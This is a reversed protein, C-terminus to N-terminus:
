FNQHRHASQARDRSVVFQLVKELREPELSMGVLCESVGLQALETQLRGLHDPPIIVIRPIGSALVQLDNLFTEGCFREARYPLLCADWECATFRTLSEGIDASFTWSYEHPRTELLIKCAAPAEQSAYGAALIKLPPSSGM